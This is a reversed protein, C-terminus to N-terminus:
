ATLYRHHNRPDLQAAASLDTLDLDVYVQTTGPDSHGMLKQLQLVPVGARALRTAYHHRLAHPHLGVLGARETSKYVIHQVQRLTMPQGKDGPILLGSTTDLTRRYEGVVLRAEHSLPVHREKMGKGLVKLIVLGKAADFIVGDTTVNAVESARLGNLLLAVVAGWRPSDQRASALLADVARDSPVEPTQNVVRQPRKVYEFPSKDIIGQQLLWRHFTRVTTFVRSAGAPARNEQLWVKFSVVVDTTLARAGLWGYWCSLDKRYAKATEVSNQMGVFQDVYM